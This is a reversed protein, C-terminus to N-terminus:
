PLNWGCPYETSNGQESAEVYQQFQSEKIFFPIYGGNRLKPILLYMTTDIRRSRYGSLHSTRDQRQEHKAAGIKNSVEAEMM